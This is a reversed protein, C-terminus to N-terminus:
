DRAASSDISTENDTRRAESIFHELFNKLKPADTLVEQIQEDLKQNQEMSWDVFFKKDLHQPLYNARIVIAAREILFWKNPMDNEMMDNLTKSFEDINSNKANQRLMNLIDTYIDGVTTM